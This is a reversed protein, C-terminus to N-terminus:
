GRSLHSEDSRMESTGFWAKLKHDSEDECAFVAHYMQFLWASHGVVALEQESRHSLFHVLFNCIRKSQELARERALPNFIIDADSDEHTWFGCFRYDRQTESLATTSQV